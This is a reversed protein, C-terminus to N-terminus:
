KMFGFTSSIFPLLKTLVPTAISAFYVGCSVLARTSMPWTPFSLVTARLRETAEVEDALRKLSDPDRRHGILPSDLLHLGRPQGGFISALLQERLEFMLVHLRAIPIAFLPFVITMFVAISATRDTLTASAV